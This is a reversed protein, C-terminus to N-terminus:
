RAVKQPDGEDNFISVNNKAVMEATLTEEIFPVTKRVEDTLISDIEGQGKEM